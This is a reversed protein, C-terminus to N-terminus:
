RNRQPRFLFFNRFVRFTMYMFFGLASFYIYFERNDMGISFIKLLTFVGAGFIYVPGMNFYEGEEFRRLRGLEEGGISREKVGQILMTRILHPNGSASKLIQRQYSAADTTRFAYRECIYEVLQRAVDDPLPEIDIRVFLSWLKRFLFGEKMQATAACLTACESLRELFPLHTPSIRDLSDLFVYWEGHTASISAAIAEQQGASGLAIFQRRVTNWAARSSVEGGGGGAAVEGQGAAPPLIGNEGGGGPAGVLQLRGREHLKQAAEKLMDGLPAIRRIFLIQQTNVMGPSRVGPRRRMLVSSALDIRRIRGALLGEAEEMLRSKGVGKQGVLLTHRRLQLNRLLKALEEGRGLLIRDALIAAARDTMAWLCEAALTRGGTM